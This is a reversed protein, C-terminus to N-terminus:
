RAAQLAVTQVLTAAFYATARQAMLMAPYVPLSSGVTGFVAPAAIPEAPVPPPMVIVAAHAIVVPAQPAPRMAVMAVAAAAAGMGAWMWVTRSSWGRASASVMVPRPEAALRAALRAGFDASVEIPMSNRALILSRRVRSDEDGCTPCARQHEHMADTKDGSLTDDLYEAHLARFQRCYMTPPTLSTVFSCVRLPVGPEWLPLIGAPGRSLLAM